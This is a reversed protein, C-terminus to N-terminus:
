DDMVRIQGPDFAEPPPGKELQRQLRGASVLAFGLTGISGGIMMGLLILLAASM